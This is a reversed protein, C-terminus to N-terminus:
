SRFCYRVALFVGSEGVDPMESSSLVIDFAQRERLSENIEELRAQASEGADARLLARFDAHKRGIGGISVERVEIERARVLYPFHVMDITAQFDGEGEAFRHWEGPFDHELRFMQVLRPRDVKELTAHLHEIAKARLREGGPRATYRLHIVVDSITDYDFQRFDNPLELQWTSIAGAGEFPLFREDRLDTEFLGSDAQGRSTVISRITGYYNTFRPDDADMAREYADGEGLAPSRRLTSKRLSLTCNVNTYPGTVAPISVGVSKIRRLYHGPTDLDFLWEPVTIECRGTAKLTLLAFPALQRLSIHKTLEYERKHHDHYAMEMRKLDLHLAEGALLGKRGGDWYNFKVFTRDDLEPRMLEHKLTREARRAVDFALKYYEYYLKSLEGQMWGYLEEGTFKERLFRETEEAQAIRQQFNEYEHRAVQERILSAIIQLGIQTLEKAALNCQFMWEAARREYGATRAAIGADQTARSALHDLVDAATRLNDTLAPGGAFSITAGVGWYHLNTDFGPLLAMLPALQRLVFAQSQYRQAQPLLENLEADENPNLYLKGEDIVELDPYGREEVPRAYQEVLEGHVQDFNEETLVPRELTFDSDAALVDKGAGLLRQYFRYREAAGERTEVLAETAAEAEKWQLYRADLALQQTDIEHKQRLLGLAESDKKELAALLANGLGRVEHCIELAKRVLPMARVPALPQNLGSVMSSVDIGAAAAKVLMGPDIPPEFLPLQRVTGEISMCHRIKFLRDAVTDWYGLLTDNRPLCFYLTRGIGFLAESAESDVNESVATDLNFPFRGELEVLANGLEDLGKARLQAFSQAGAAGRRPTQRPRPGLLNAALVYVQTAENIAEITDQRFLSDGWAILNDLYKMVVCYQYALPRTRAVAHPRFPRKRLADYGRLVEERQARQEDSLDDDPKAVLALLEDIRLPTEESRFALFRWYEGDRATPDFIYHFWRQAEAFRQNKSLHVAITLPVHFLLEWNYVAYASQASFEIRKPFYHVTARGSGTRPAYAAEFFDRTLSAHFDADLLGDVSRENLREILDGVFPHFHHHFTYRFRRGEHRRTAIGHAGSAGVLGARESSAAGPEAVGRSAADSAAVATAVSGAPGIDRDGFAVVVDSGIVRQIAGSSRMINPESVAIAIRAAERRPDVPRAGDPVPEVLPPFQVRAELEPTLMLGDFDQLRVRREKTSVFFAHRQDQFFFPAVFFDSMTQRPAVADAGPWGRQLLTERHAAVFRFSHYDDMQLVDLGDEDAAIERTWPWHQPLPEDATDDENRVPVAHTDYLKFYHWGSHLRGNRTHQLNDSNYGTYVYLATATTLCRMTLRGRDFRRGASTTFTRLEVPRKPDSTKEPQWKGNYYESWHLTLTVRTRAEGSTEKLQSLRANTLRTDDDSGSSGDPEPEGEEHVSLWFLLLRGRWVVPAVPNDEVNLDVREWPTWAAGGELRRYYYRRAAGATRGIVHVVEDASNVFENEQYYIACIELKAIEDLKELYHLLAQEAAAETLDSELLESELEKFFPTKDDRLDPELWNEPWLFVKRNAEWVRYRKMWAWKHARVPVEQAEGIVWLGLKGDFGASALRAGDHSFAVGRAIDSHASFTELHQLRDGDSVDWLLVAGGNDCSAVLTGDHNFAVSRVRDRHRRSSALRQPHDPDRVDWLIVRRDSGGTVVRTGDPAFAVDQVRDSHGTLTALERARRANAVDWVIVNRDNSGSVLRRGDVSFAVGRVWDSHADLTKLRRPNEADSVDWLLITHDNSASALRTGDHNFAASNVTESHADLTALESPRNPRTVDWLILTNDTAGSVLRTGDHNFAVARVSGGHGELVRLKVPHRPFRVDWLVVTNDNSGSAMVAGGPSFAVTNVREEHGPFTGLETVRRQPTAGGELNMLSRQVFLQVSSIAQRIRSTKMCSDMQVDILFYEFLKDPTDIHDTAESQSLRHLISAVLADRRHERLSDNVPQVFALWDRDIRVAGKAPLEDLTLPVAQAASGDAYRARLADRLTRLTDADPENTIVELLTAASVGLKGVLKMAQHVRTLHPLHALDAATLDFHELLATRDAASWGTIRELLPEGDEARAGPDRLLALLPEDRTELASKLNQYHLLQRVNELLARAVGADASDSVPLANLWGREEIRYARHAAFFVLEERSLELADAIALTKGLRLYSARFRAVTAAPYLRSPAVTTRGLSEQEWKLILTESVREATISVAYLRGTELEIPDTNRWVGDSAALGVEREDLHLAVTADADTELRFNYFGNYPAELFARWVGSVATAEGDPDRPLTEGGPRYDVLCVPVDHRDPAGGVEDSFYVDASLGPKTLALFDEIAPTEARGEAHLVDPRELLPRLRTQEVDLQAGVTQLVQQRQLRDRVAPLLDAMLEAVKRERPAESQAFNEYASALKPYRQFFARFAERGAAYLARVAEAFAETAGPASELATKEATTMVGRFALRKRFDDYGIREASAVIGAELESQGHDYEVDFAASDNLLGFFHDAAEDGYAQALMERAREDTPDDPLAYEREIRTLDDRVTRALALVSERPPTANGSWDTHRLFYLLQSVTFPSTQIRQVREVFRIAAPRAAGLPLADDAVGLDLPQFPDLGTLEKLALFERVSIRLARALYGHRFLASAAALTLPTDETLDLAATVRAFEDATLNLAARLTQANAGLRPPAADGGQFAQKDALFRGNGDPAFVADLTWADAQRFLRRYLSRDGHTDIDSWCALLAPLDREPTLKLREMMWRLHGLRPILVQLGRDLKAAAADAADGAEPMQEAPYLAALARDTQEISWGLKRWLRVFRILKLFEIPRLRNADFNPHAYRLEVTDFRCPNLDDTPDSLVVLGMIRAQHDRLWQKVDGNYPTEDLDDPLLDDFDAEDLSGDLLAQITAFDVGLRELAPLLYTDPNIFWTGLLDVLQEHSLDLRRAYARANSLRAVLEELDVADPDEGYLRPLTIGRDTLAAYEQRSLRLREILIDRWAYVSDNTAIADDARLSEMADHLAVDAQRLHGRVAELPQHFPLPPPFVAERLVGYAADKVFQPSALLEESTVGAETDHGAFGELSGEVVFHELIENVLDIYPLATHTNECTLALHKLDPRRSLLTDLASEGSRGPPDLFQLLDVLYAAPSLWSRCHECACYDLAGFVEELTPYDLVADGRVSRTASAQERAPVADIANLRPAARELLFGHALNLVTHNIRHARSYVQRATDRGGLEAKFSEVFGDEDYRTVAHASDIDRALLAGMADDSPSVRYVRQLKKVKALAEGSLPEDERVAAEGEARRLYAEVPEGGLEFRGQHKELFRVVVSKVATEARLPMAGKELKDAVVATPYSLRVQNALLDAYHVRKTDTDDGPVDAPVAVDEGLLAEWAEKEYLGRRVLDLPTRVAADGEHLREILPANNVTLFALKGDLQLREVAEAGFAESAQRWFGERDDGAARYLRAFRQRDRARPLAGRTIAQLGFGGGAADEEQLLREAGHESFRKSADPVEGKLDAPLIKEAVARAWIARATVPSLADLAAENAPVGARFLAYYFAPDIGSGEGFREALASMAVARADWGTKNALYTVDQRTDDERLESLRGAEGAADLHPALSDMLQRYEAVPALADPPIIVDLGSESAGGNFRIGSAALVDGDTSLARVQLDPASSALRKSAYGIEYRGDADAVAEGLRAVEGVRVDVAELRLRHGQHGVVRGRVRRDGSTEPAEPEGLEALLANIANATAEDVEGSRELGRKHQFAAVFRRTVKGFFRRAREKELLAVMRQSADNDAAFIAGEELLLLLADQLVIVKRGRMQWKLPFTVKMM